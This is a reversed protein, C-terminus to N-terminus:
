EASSIGQHQVHYVMYTDPEPNLLFGFREYLGHADRTNLAWKRLGQLDNHALICSILWKGLGQGRYRPLIFLDALYAFSSCDSIVRAFGIQMDNNQSCDYVGFCISNKLSRDVTESAIGRAWYSEHALYRHVMDVELKAPDTNILFGDHRFKQHSLTQSGVM